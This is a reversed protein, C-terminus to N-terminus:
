CHFSQMNYIAESTTYDEKLTYALYICQISYSCYQCVNTGGDIIKSIGDSSLDLDKESAMHDIFVSARSRLPLVAPLSPPYRVCLVEPYERQEHQILFEEESDEVLLGEEIM